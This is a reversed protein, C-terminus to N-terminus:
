NENPSGSLSPCDGEHQFRVSRALQGVMRAMREVSEFSLMVNMPARDEFVFRVELEKQDRRATARTIGVLKKPRGM